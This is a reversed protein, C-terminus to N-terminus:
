NIKFIEMKTWSGDATGRIDQSTPNSTYVTFDIYDTTGNMTVIGCVNQTYSFTQIGVLSIAFTSGNKRLQINTQNNTISGAQWNVMGDVHYTGAVTPTTRTTIGSYWNNPDAITSFGILTDAGNLATQDTARAIKVYYNGPANLNETVTAVGVVVNPTGTLGQAVTAIGATTAYGATTATTATTATGILNGVFGGTSTTVGSINLQNTFFTGTVSVTNLTTIGSVYLNTTSTGGGVTLTNTKNTTGVGVNSLTHIGSSTSVWQTSIGLANFDILGEYTNAPVSSVNFSVNTKNARAIITQNIGVGINELLYEQRPQLKENYIIYDKSSFNAASVTSIGVFFRCEESVNQNIIKINTLSNKTATFLSYNRNIVFGTETTIGSGEKGYFTSIGTNSSTNYDFTSQVVFSVDVKSAKCFLVDGSKIGINSLTINGNRLIEENYTIYDSYSINSISGSAIGVFVRATDLGQNTIHISVNSLVGSFSYLETNKNVGGTSLSTKLSALRGIAM